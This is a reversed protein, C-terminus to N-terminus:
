SFDAFHRVKFKNVLLNFKVNYFLLFLIGNRSEQPFGCITTKIKTNISNVFFFFQLEYRGRICYFHIDEDSM